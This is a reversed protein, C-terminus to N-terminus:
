PTADAIVPELAAVVTATVPPVAGSMPGLADATVTVTVTDPGFQVTVQPDTVAAGGHRTLFTQAAMQGRPASAPTLAAQQAGIEAAGQVLEQGYSWTGYGLVGVLALVAITPLLIATAVTTTSGRQTGHRRLATWRDHLPTM